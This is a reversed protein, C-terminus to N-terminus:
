PNPSVSSARFLSPTTPSTHSMAGSPLFTLSVHGLPYLMDATSYALKPSLSPVHPFYECPPQEDSMEESTTELRQRPLSDHTTGALVFSNPLGHLCSAFLRATFATQEDAVFGLWKALAFAGELTPTATGVAGFHGHSM